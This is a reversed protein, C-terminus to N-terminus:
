GFSSEMIVGPVPPSMGLGKVAPTAKTGGRATGGRGRVVGVGEGEECARGRVLLLEATGGLFARRGVGGGPTARGGGEAM